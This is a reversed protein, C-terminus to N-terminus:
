EVADFCVIIELLGDGGFQEVEDIAGLVALLLINRGVVGDDGMKNNAKQQQAASNSSTVEGTRPASESESEEEV